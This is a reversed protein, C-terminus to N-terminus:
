GKWVGSRLVRNVAMVLANGIIFRNARAPPADSVPLPDNWAIEETQFGFFDIQQRLAEAAELMDDSVVLWVLRPKIWEINRPEARPEELRRERSTSRSNEVTGLLTSVQRQLLAIDQEPLPHSEPTGLRALALNELGPMGNAISWAVLEHWNEGAAVQLLWHDAEESVSIGRLRNVLVLGHFDSTFLMNSGGGLVLRSLSRWQKDALLTALQAVSDIECGWDAYAKMGFTNLASLDFHSHPSM